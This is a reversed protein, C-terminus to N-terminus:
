MSGLRRSLFIQFWFFLCFHIYAHTVGGNKDCVFVKCEKLFFFDQKLFHPKKLAGSKDCVEWEPIPWCDRSFVNISSSPFVNRSLSFDSKKFPLSIQFVNSFNPRLSFPSSFTFQERKRGRKQSVIIKM